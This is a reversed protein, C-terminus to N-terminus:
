YREQHLAISEAWSQCRLCEALQGLAFIGWFWWYIIPRDMLERIRQFPIEKVFYGFAVLILAAIAVNVVITILDLYTLPWLLHRPNQQNVWRYILALLLLNFSLLNPWSLLEASLGVWVGLPVLISICGGLLSRKWFNALTPPQKKYFPIKHNNM